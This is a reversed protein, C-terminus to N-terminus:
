NSNAGSADPTRTGVVRGATADRVSAILAEVRSAKAEVRFSGEAGFERTVGLVSGSAKGLAAELTGIDAFSCRFEVVGRRWRSDRPAEAVATRAAEGYARILGGTGLKTGGFYRVVVCAVGEVEASELARVIPAGATGGPEGDDDSREEGDIRAGWCHHSADPYRQRSAELERALTERNPCPFAVALFRSGKVRLEIEESRGLTPELDPDSPEPTTPESSASM